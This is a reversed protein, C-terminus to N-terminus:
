TEAKWEVEVTAPDFYSEGPRWGPPRGKRAKYVRVTALLELVERRQKLDLGEWVEAPDRGAFGAMTSTQAARELAADVEALQTRLAATGETLQSADVTGQAYLRALEDLRARLGDAEMRLPAIDPAVPRLLDVADPRRLREVLVATVYDDLDVASRIVHSAVDCRYTPRGKTSSARLREDCVGCRYLGGGLWRRPRGKNTRRREDTLIARCAQWTDRDVIPPWSAEGAVEGRLVIFGANRPNLLVRRLETPKWESGTSTTVGRENLDAALSRLSRGKVIDETARVLAGAEDPRVTYGDAEYGFPRRGGSWRGDKVAQLQASRIRESAHEVEYRAVAGLQRAILRGSPTALDLPGAKVTHTVVGHRECLAVYDELEVPRRHLRDTHWALVGSVEGAKLAELMARYGPRPKGSSASVDNDVFTRVITWGLRDALERCDAEQRDVGLGAGERDQSIRVYAAAARLTAMDTLM